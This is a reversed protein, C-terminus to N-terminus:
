TGSQFKMAEDSLWNKFTDVAESVAGTDPTVLYYAFGTDMATNLPMVLRGDDLESQVLASRGLILGFGDVAAQIAALSSSFHLAGQEPAPIGLREFWTQWTPFDLGTGDMTRDHILDAKAVENPAEIRRTLLYDPSCVPAIKEGLLHEATLGAWSGRGYRIGVDAQERRLDLLRETSDIRVQIGPHSIAFGGLRQALWKVAFSPAATVRVVAGTKCSQLSATAHALLDFGATLQPVIKAADETLAISRCGRRFLRIGYYDELLKIQQSIAGPTVSLEAAAKAFSM